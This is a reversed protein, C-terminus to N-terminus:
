FRRGQGKGRGQGAGRGFGKAVGMPGPTDVKTLKGNIFKEINEKITGTTANYVEIGLQKLVSFARPGVAGSIVVEAKENGVTQAATIGAGGFQNVALNQVAKTSKIEKDEVDAIIFYQCRGFVSSIQSDVNDETSSIAIKMKDGNEWWEQRANLVNKQLV